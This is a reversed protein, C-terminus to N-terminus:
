PLSRRTLCERRPLRANRLLKPNPADISGKTGSSSACAAAWAGGLRSTNKKLEFPVIRSLQTGVIVSPLSTSLGIKDGSSFSFDLSSTMSPSAWLTMM